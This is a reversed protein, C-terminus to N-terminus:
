EIVASIGRDTLATKMPYLKDFIGHYVSSKGKFHVIMACQEAQEESHNCVDILSDIVHDFTNVDDNYVVLIKEEVLTAVNDILEETLIDEKTQYRNM